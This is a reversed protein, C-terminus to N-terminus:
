SERLALILEVKGVQEDLRQAIEVAPFGEDSLAYVQSSLPDVETAAFAHTTRLRPTSPSSVEAPRSASPAVPRQQPKPETIRDARELLRELRDLRNDLQASCVRTLEQADVMLREIEARHKAYPDRETRSDESPQQRRRLWRLLLTVSVLTVGAGSLAGVLWDSPGTDGVPVAGVLVEVCAHVLSTLGTGDM